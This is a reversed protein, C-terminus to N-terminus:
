HQDVVEIFARVRNLALAASMIVVDSANMPHARGKLPFKTRDDRTPSATGISLHRNLHAHTLPNRLQLVERYRQDTLTATVRDRFKEPLKAMLEDASPPSNVAHKRGVWQMVASLVGGHTQGRKGRNSKRDFRRLDLENTGTHDCFLRGMTAACLDIATIANMTAWRVHSIDLVSDDFPAAADLTQLYESGAATWTAWIFSNPLTPETSHRKKYSTDVQAPDLPWLQPAM